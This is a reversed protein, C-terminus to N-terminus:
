IGIPFRCHPIYILCVGLIITCMGINDGELTWDLWLHSINQAVKRLLGNISSICHQPINFIELERLKLNNEITTHQLARTISQVEEDGAREDFHIHLKECKTPVPQHFGPLALLAAEGVKIDHEIAGKECFDVRSLQIEEAPFYHMLAQFETLTPSMEALILKKLPKPKMYAKARRVSKYLFDADRESDVRVWMFVLHLTQLSPLGQIIWVLEQISRSHHRSVLKLTRVCSALGSHLTRDRLPGFVDRRLQTKDHFVVEHVLYRRAPLTWSSHVRSCVCLDRDFKVFSFIHDLLEPPLATFPGPIRSPWGPWSPNPTIGRALSFTYSQSIEALGSSSQFSSAPSCRKKSTTSANVDELWGDYDDTGARRKRLSSTSVTTSGISQINALPETQVSQDSYSVPETQVAKSKLLRTIM